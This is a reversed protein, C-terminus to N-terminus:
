LRVCRTRQVGLGTVASEIVDGRRRYRGYRAIVVGSFDDGASGRFRGLAYSTGAPM